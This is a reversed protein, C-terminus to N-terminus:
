LHTHDCFNCSTPTHTHTSQIQARQIVSAHGLVGSQLPSWASRERGFMATTPDWDTPLVETSSLRTPRGAEYRTQVIECAYQTNKKNVLGWTKGCIENVHGPLSKRGRPVPITVRLGRIKCSCCTRLAPSM